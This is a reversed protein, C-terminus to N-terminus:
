VGMLRWVEQVSTLGEYALRATQAEWATMGEKIALQRIQEIEAGQRLAEAIPRSMVLAEGVGVRGRYGTQGCQACGVATRFHMKPKVPDIGGDTLTKKLKVLDAKGPQTDKACAQCLRRCLHQNYVLRVADGIAFPTEGLKLLRALAEASSDAHLQALVLHGTRALDVTARLTELDRIEDCIVVDPHVSMVHRLLEHPPMDEDTGEVQTIWPLHHSQGPHVSVVREISCDILDVAAFMTTTKGSGAPGTFLVVGNLASFAQQIREINIPLLGCQELTVSQGVPGVEVALSEGLTSRLFALRLDMLREGIRLNLSHKQAVKQELVDMRALRKWAQMLYNLLRIDLDAIVRLLGNIRFRVPVRVRGDKEVHPAIHIDSAGMQEALLAMLMVARELQSLEDGAEVPTLEDIEKQKMGTKVLEEELTQIFPAPSVPMSIRPKEGQLFREIDERLFRWQRGAKMSRVRGQRVWRYLTSRSTKLIRLAEDLEILDKENLGQSKTTKPLAKPEM